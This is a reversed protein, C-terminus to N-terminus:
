QFPNGFGGGQPEDEREPADFPNPVDDLEPVFFDSTGNAEHEAARV